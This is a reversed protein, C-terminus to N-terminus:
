NTKLNNNNIKTTQLKKEDHFCFYELFTNRVACHKLYIQSIQIRLRTSCGKELHNFFDM